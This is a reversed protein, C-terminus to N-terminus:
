RPSIERFVGSSRFPANCLVGLAFSVTRQPPSGHGCKDTWSRRELPQSGSNSMMAQVASTRRRELFLKKIFLKALHQGWIVQFAPTAGHNGQADCTHWTCSQIPRETPQQWMRESASTPSLLGNSRQLLWGALLYCEPAAARLFWRSALSIDM